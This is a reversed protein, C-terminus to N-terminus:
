AEFVEKRVTLAEIRELDPSVGIGPGGPVSMLGDVMEFEPAVIDEAWYRRSNSIDGPITFGPLAALAVNYARGVGSELMGGCWVPWGAARCADHIAISSRFGGVRGPKINIIRGANLRLALRADGPSRISEDLCVPTKLHEQLRSHDLVDEHSLPQEIMMLDHDDLSQLRPLDEPLRYASNADAMVPADPFRKRVAGLMEADRGPKIKIKIKRYGESLYKGVREVLAADTRQIGISVGVPVAKRTAGLLSALSANRRKAELDWGAMEIAARAMPHGRLWPVPHLNRADEFEKGVLDPLLWRTLIFWATDTTEYSYGPTEGAVCESWAEIGEAELTLLVVRRAKTGGSSIEFYERLELPLERLVARKIRM